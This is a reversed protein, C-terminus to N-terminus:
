FKSRLPKYSNQLKELWMKFKENGKGGNLFFKQLTLLISTEGWIWLNKFIKRYKGIMPVNKTSKQIMLSIIQVKRFKGGLFFSGLFGLYNRGGETGWDILISKKKYIM